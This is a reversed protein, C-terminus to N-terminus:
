NVSYTEVVSNTSGHENPVYADAANDNVWENNVATMSHWWQIETQANAAFSCTAALALASLKLKM